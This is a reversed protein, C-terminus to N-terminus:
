QSSNISLKLGKKPELVLGGAYSPKKRGKTKAAGDGEETEEDGM